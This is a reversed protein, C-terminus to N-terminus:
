SAVETLDFMAPVPYGHRAHWRVIKDRARKQARADKAVCAAIWRPWLIDWEERQSLKRTKTKRAVTKTTM